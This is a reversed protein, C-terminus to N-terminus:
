GLKEVLSLLSSYYRQNNFDNDPEGGLHRTFPHGQERLAALALVIEYDCKIPILNGLMAIKGKFVHPSPSFRELSKGAPVVVTKEFHGPYMQNFKPQM